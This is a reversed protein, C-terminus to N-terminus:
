TSSSLTLLLSSTSPAMLPMIPWSSGKLWYMSGCSCASMFWSVSPLKPPKPISILMFFWTSVTTLGMSPVGASLAPMLGPSMIRLISPALVSLMSSISATCLIRPSMPVLTTIVTKRSPKSAGLSKLRVRAAMLIRETFLLM